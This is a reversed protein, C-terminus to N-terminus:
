KKDAYGAPLTKVKEKYLEYAGRWVPSGEGQWDDLQLLYPLLDRSFAESSERPLLSPLHDISIVSLPPGGSGEPLEVAVTPKTFVTNINYIPIPNNPNTTDCSVDCVVSLNRPGSLSKADIFPPIKESLYICNVFIDADVIEPYPGPKERTENIDWKIIQSDPLGAKVFLDVAGRGCRGLAGMVLVKPQRGLKETGDKLEAKLQELLQDENEYYGRGETFDHVDPLAKGEHQLQYFFAKLALAAGCFGASVGFAAVRRKKDDQLFELDLLIGGGRAYRGLVTDWGGQQKYCHHFTVHTNKLPFPPEEDIEKLGVIIVDEPADVWSQDPVLTAGIKEFEEDKFIRAIQPDTSSREVRVDFKGSDILAKATFPTLCSRHEYKKTESRLHLIQKPAM